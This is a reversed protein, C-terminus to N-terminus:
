ILEALITTVNVATATQRGVGDVLTAAKNASNFVPICPLGTRQTLWIFWSATLEQGGALGPGGLRLNGFDVSRYGILTCPTDITYGLIAYDTNAKLSDGLQTVPQAPSYNGDAPLSLTNRVTLLNVQRSRLEEFDILRASVGPLSSYAVLLAVEEIQGATTTGSLEVTLTDQAYLRQGTGWPILPYPNTAVHRIRMSDVNDHMRPSRIRLEGTVNSFVWAQLLKATAGETFLRITFTDGTNPTVATLTAGPATVRGSLIELAAMPAGEGERQVVAPQV